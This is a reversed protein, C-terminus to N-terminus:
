MLAGSAASLDIAGRSPLFYQEGPTSGCCVPLLHHRILGGLIGRSHTDVEMKDLLKQKFGVNTFFPRVTCGAPSWFRGHLIPRAALSYLKTWASEKDRHRLTVAM